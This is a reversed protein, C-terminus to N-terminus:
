ALIILIVSLYYEPVMFYSIKSSFKQLAPNPFKVELFGDYESVIASDM